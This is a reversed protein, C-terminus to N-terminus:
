TDTSPEDAPQPNGDVYETPTDDEERTLQDLFADNVKLSGVQLLAAEVTLDESRSALCVALTAKWVKASTGPWPAWARGCLDAIQEHDNLTLDDERYVEGEHEIRWGM